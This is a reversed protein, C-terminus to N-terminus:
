GEQVRALDDPLVEVLLDEREELDLLALDSVRPSAVHPSVEKRKLKEYLEPM